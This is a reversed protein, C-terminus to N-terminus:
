WASFPAALFSRMIAGCCERGASRRCHSNSMAEISFLVPITYSSDCAPAIRCAASPLVMTKVPPGPVPFVDVVCPITSINRELPMFTRRAAGVPRAALLIDSAHPSSAFVMWRSNPYLGAPPYWFFAFLWRIPSARMTSSNEMTSMSRRFAKSLAM